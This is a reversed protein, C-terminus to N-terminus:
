KKLIEATIFSDLFNILCRRHAYTLHEISLTIMENTLRIIDLSTV